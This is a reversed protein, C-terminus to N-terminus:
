KNCHQRIFEAQEETMEKKSVIFGTNNATM